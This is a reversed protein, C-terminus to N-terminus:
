TLFWKLFTNWEATIRVGNRDWHVYTIGKKQSHRTEAWQLLANEIITYHAGNEPLECEKWIALAYPHNPARCFRSFTPSPPPASPASPVSPLLSQSIMDSYLEEFVDM